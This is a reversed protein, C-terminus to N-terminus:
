KLIDIIVEQKFHETLKKKLEDVRGDNIVDSYFNNGEYGERHIKRAILYAFTNIARKTPMKKKSARTARSSNIRRRALNKRKFSEIIGKRKIWNRIEKEVLGPVREPDGKKRRKSPGKGSSKTKTRGGDVAGSYEPMILQFLLPDGFTINYTIKASLRSAGGAGFVVKREKLSDKLDDVLKVGFPELIDDLTEM